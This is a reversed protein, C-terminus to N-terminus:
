EIPLRGAPAHAARDRGVLRLGPTAPASPSPAGDPEVVGRVDGAALLDILSRAVRLPERVRRCVHALQRVMCRPVATVVAFPLAITAGVITHLVREVDARLPDETTTTAM